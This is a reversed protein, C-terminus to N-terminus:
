RSGGAGATAESERKATILMAKSEVGKIPCYHRIDRREGRYDGLLTLFPKQFSGFQTLAQVHPGEGSM